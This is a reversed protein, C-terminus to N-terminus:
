IFSLVAAQVDDYRHTHFGTIFWVLAISCLIFLATKM